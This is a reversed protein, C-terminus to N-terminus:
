VIQSWLRPEATFDGEGDGSGSQDGREGQEQSVRAAAGWTSPWLVGLPHASLCMAFIVSRSKLPWTLSGHVTLDESSMM